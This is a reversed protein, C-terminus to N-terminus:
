EKTVEIKDRTNREKKYEKLLFGRAVGLDLDAGERLRLFVACRSFEVETHYYISVLMETTQETAESM